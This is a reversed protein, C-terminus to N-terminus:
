TVAVRGSAPETEHEPCGPEYALRCVLRTGPDKSRAWLCTCDSSSMPFLDPYPQATYHDSCEASCESM